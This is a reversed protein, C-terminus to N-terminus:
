IDNATNRNEITNNYREPAPPQKLTDQWLLESGANDCALCGCSAWKPSAEDDDDHDEDDHDVEDYDNDEDDDDEDDHDM